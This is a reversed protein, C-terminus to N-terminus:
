PIISVLHLSAPTNNPQCPDSFLVFDGKGPRESCLQSTPAPSRITFGLVKKTHLALDFTGRSNTCAKGRYNVPIPGM